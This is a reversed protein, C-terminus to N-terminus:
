TLPRHTEVHDNITRALWQKESDSLSAGFTLRLAGAEVRCGGGAVSCSGLEALPITTARSFRFLRRAITVDASGLVVETRGFVSNAAQYLLVFGVVWFPVSFLPFIIPAGMTIAAFTWFAVFGLWFLSFGGLAAAQGMAGREPVIVTRAGAEDRVWIRSGFPLAGADRVAPAVATGELLAIAREVPLTRKREDPELYSDLVAGLPRSVEILSRYDLKLDKAPVETPDRHTLLFVLTVAVAYLDSRVTARGLVQEPPAYGPTGILTAGSSGHMRLADQVGGFDVLYVRGDDARLVNKPNIDRHVIPPRLGHIHATIRLLRAGIERIEEETGRWGSAVKDRLSPAAIYQQVLVFTHQGDIESAFSDVYRPISEHDLEKLVRSEREFLEIQSWGRVEGMRLLKVVVQEGSREDVALHTVGQGGSGLPRVLRYRDGILPQQEM